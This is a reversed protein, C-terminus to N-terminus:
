AEGGNTRVQVLAPRWNSSEARPALAGAVGCGTGAASTFIFTTANDLWAFWAPTGVTIPGTAEAVAVFTAGDVRAGTHAM